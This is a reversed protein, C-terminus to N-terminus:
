GGRWNYGGTEDALKMMDRSSADQESADFNDSAATNMAGGRDAIDMPGENADAVDMVGAGFRRTLDAALYARLQARLKTDHAFTLMTKRQDTKEAVAM